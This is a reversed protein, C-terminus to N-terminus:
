LNGAWHAVRAVGVSDNQKLHVALAFGATVSLHVVVDPCAIATLGAPADVAWPMEPPAANGPVAVVLNLQVIVGLCAIVAFIASARDNQSLRLNAGLHVAVTRDVPM